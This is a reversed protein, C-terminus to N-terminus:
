QPDGSTPNFTDLDYFFLLNVPNCLIGVICVMLATM